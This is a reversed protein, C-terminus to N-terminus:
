SKTKTTQQKVNNGKDCHMASTLTAPIYASWKRKSSAMTWIVTVGVIIGLDLEMKLM